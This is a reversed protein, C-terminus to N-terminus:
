TETTSPSPETSNTTSPPTTPPTPASPAPGPTSDLWSTAAYFGNRHSALGWPTVATLDLGSSDTTTSEAIKADAESITEGTSVSMLELRANRNSDTSSYTVYLTDGLIGARKVKKNERRWRLAPVSAGPPRVALGATVTNASDKVTSTSDKGITTIITQQDSAIDPWVHNGTDSGWTDDLEITQGSTLNRAYYRAANDRNEVSLSVDMYYYWGDRVIYSFEAEATEQTGNTLFVITEGKASQYTAGLAQGYSTIKTDPQNGIISHADFQTSLDDTSLRLGIYEHDAGYIDDSGTLLLASRDETFSLYMNSYTDDSYGTPFNESLTTSTTIAGDSLRIKLMVVSTNEKRPPSSSSTTDEPETFSGIVLYAHDDDLLAPGLVITTRDSASAEKKYYNERDDSDHEVVKTIWTGNNDLLIARTTPGSVDVIVPCWGETFYKQAESITAGGCLYRNHAATITATTTETTPWTPENTFASPAADPTPPKPPSKRFWSPSYANMVPLAIVAAGAAATATLFTRRRM